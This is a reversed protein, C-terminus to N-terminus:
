IDKALNITTTPHVIQALSELHTIVFRVRGTEWHLKELLVHRTEELIFPSLWVEINGARALDLIELPKGGFHLASIIVNTDILIKPKPVPTKKVPQM